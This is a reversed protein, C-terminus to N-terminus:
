DAHVEYVGTSQISLAQPFFNPSIILVHRRHRPLISIKPQSSSDVATAKEM